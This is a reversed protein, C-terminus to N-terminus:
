VPFCIHLKNIQNRLKIEILLIPLNVRLAINNGWLKYRLLGLYLATDDALAGLYVAFNNVRDDSCTNRDSFARHDAIGFAGAGATTHLNLSAANKIESAARDVIAVVEVGINRAAHQYRVVATEVEIVAYDAVACATGAACDTQVAGVHHEAATLPRYGEIHVAADAKKIGTSKLIELINKRIEKECEENIYFSQLNKNEKLELRTIEGNYEISFQRIMESSKGAVTCLMICVMYILLLGMFNRVYREYKKDPVLQIVATFIIYFVALNRVWSSIEEKM